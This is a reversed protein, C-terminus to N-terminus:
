NQRISRVLPDGDELGKDFMSPFAWLQVEMYYDVSEVLYIAYKFKMGEVSDEYIYRNGEFGNFSLKEVEADDPVDYNELCFSSYAEFNNFDVAQSIGVVMYALNKRTFSANTFETLEEPDEYMSWKSPISVLFEQEDDSYFIESNTEEEIDSLTDEESKSDASNNVKEKSSSLNEKTTNSSCGSIILLSFVFLLVIKKM